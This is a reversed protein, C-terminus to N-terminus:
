SPKVEVKVPEEHGVKLLLIRLVGDKHLASLRSREIPEPLRFSRRFSGHRREVLRWAGKEEEREEQKEGSLILVDGSLELHIEEPKLGPVEAVIEYGEPSEKVDVLPSFGVEPKEGAVLEDRLGDWLWDLNRGFWRVPRLGGFPVLEYSYM